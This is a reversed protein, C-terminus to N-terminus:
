SKNIGLKEALDNYLKKLNEIEAVMKPIDNIDIAQKDIIAQEEEIMSFMAPSAKFLPELVEVEVPTTRRQLSYLRDYYQKGGIDFCIKRAKIGKKLAKKLAEKIADTSYYERM